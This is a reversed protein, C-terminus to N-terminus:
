AAAGEEGEAMIHKMVVEYRQIYDANDRIMGTLESRDEDVANLTNETKQSKPSQRRDYSDMKALIAAADPTEEVQPFMWDDNGERESIKRQVELTRPDPEGGQAEDFESMRRWFAIADVDQNPQVM